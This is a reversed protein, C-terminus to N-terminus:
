MRQAYWAWTTVFVVLGTVLLWSYNSLVPYTVDATREVTGLTLLGVFLAWFSFTSARLGIQFYREDSRDRRRRTTDGM